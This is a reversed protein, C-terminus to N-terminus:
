RTSGQIHWNWLGGAETVTLKPFVTPWGVIVDGTAFERMADGIHTRVPAATSVDGALTGVLAKTGKTAVSIARMDLM